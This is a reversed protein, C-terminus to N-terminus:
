KTIEISDFFSPAMSLDNGEVIAYYLCNKSCFVRVVKKGNNYHMDAIYKVKGQSSPVPSIKAEDGFDEELEQIFNKEKRPPTYRDNVESNIEYDVGLYRSYTFAYGSSIGSKPSGPISGVFGVDNNDYSVDQWVIGNEEYSSGVRGISLASLSGALALSFITLLSFAKFKNM